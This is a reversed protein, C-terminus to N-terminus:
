FSKIYAEYDHVQYNEGYGNTASCTQGPPLRHQTILRGFLCYGVNEFNLQEGNVVAEM